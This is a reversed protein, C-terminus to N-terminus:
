ECGATYMMFRGAIPNTDSMREVKARLGIKPYLAITKEIAPIAPSPNM